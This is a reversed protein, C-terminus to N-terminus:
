ALLENDFDAFSTSAAAGARNSATEARLRKPNAGGYRIPAPGLTLLAHQEIADACAQDPVDIDVGPFKSSLLGVSHSAHGNNAHMLTQELSLGRQWSMISPTKAGAKVPIVPFGARMLLPGMVGYRRTM